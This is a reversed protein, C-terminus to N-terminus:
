FVNKLVVEPLYSGRYYYYHFDLYPNCSLRQIKSSITLLERYPKNDVSIFEVEIFHDWDDSFNKVNVALEGLCANCAIFPPNFVMSDQKLSTQSFNFFKELEQDELLPRHKIWNPDSRLLYCGNFELDFSMSQCNPISISTILNMLSRKGNIKAHGLNDCEIKTKFKLNAHHNDIIKSFVFYDDIKDYEVFGLDLANDVINKLKQYEIGVDKYDFLNEFFDRIVDVDRKKSTEICQYYTDM